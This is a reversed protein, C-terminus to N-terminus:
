LKLIKPPYFCALDGLDWPLEFVRRHPQRMMPPQRSVVFVAFRWGIPRTAPASGEVELALPEVWANEHLIAPLREQAGPM